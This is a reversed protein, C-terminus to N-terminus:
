RRRRLTHSALKRTCPGTNDKMYFYVILDFIFNFHPRKTRLESQCEKCCYRITHCQACLRLSIQQEPSYVNSCQHNGCNKGDMPAEIGDRRRLWKTVTATMQPGCTLYTDGPKIGDADEVNLDAGFEMLLDVTAVDLNILPSFIPVRGLRDRHNVNARAPAELLIRALDLRATNMTTHHLATYGLIDPADVPVGRDVLYKLVQVHQSSGPPGGVIRQAGLVVLAAYGLKFPTETGSLDPASGSEVAQSCTL